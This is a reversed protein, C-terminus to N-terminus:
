RAAGRVEFAVSDVPEASAASRLLLEHRGPTPSWRHVEGAPGLPTGDLELVHGPASSRAAVLVKQSAPPIDPDLAITAGDPPSVIRPAVRAADALEVRRTETGALFWERRPPEIPPAFSIEAAVVGPPPEPAEGADGAHLADVIALWAPAAGSVGSVGRMPDGEFNGVWVGVSYRRTFGVCWNDRLDKSTGTKVASWARTALPSELGFTPARGARDALADAVLFAAEPSMVRRPPPAEGPVLRLASWAGGNALTRYANVQEVLSVEASGLALSFGYYEGDEAIGAYGVERLRDRFAEVGVLGLARVAPVNLSAALATRASVTGKFDRDYNQPIYLGTATELAVPSDDLLSAPTLLRREFALGYLFPKLTSGAQRRALAGDVRPATSAPGASGVWALVAGSANEVVVAAGDRVSRPGLAALQQRLADAALRQIRADLTTRVREGPRVLLRQALHPAADPRPPAPPRLAAAGRHAMGVAERVAAAVAGCGAAFRSAAAVACARRAVREPAANPAPLLAALAAAEAETLGAASKGFLGQAAAAVGQHEGRFDVRNLYAELIESKSWRVELALAAGIQALKRRLSRGEAGAALLPEVLAATQMSLTSAGRPPGGRLRGWAAAALARGDVGPHEFFRRDEAAVVAAVLAPSVRDLATWPLRRVGFDVRAEHLVAGSRDLLWAESPRHAARVAAFDPPPASGPWLAALLSALLAKV